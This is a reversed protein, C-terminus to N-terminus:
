PEDKTALLYRDRGFVDLEVRVARWGGARASDLTAGARRSDIELALLGGPVLHAAAERLIARTQALGDPGGDLAQRPEYDRVSPDVADWEDGTLYPPNSVIVDAIVGALPQLLSGHRFEVVGGGTAAACNARAVELADASVDTAIIREFAGEAALSLAIAGSGTGIDVATGWRGRRRAWALVIEVLGETEPRPILVRQDVRLELLRFAALGVATALPAGRAQRAVAERFRRVFDPGPAPAESALWVAGPTARALAAWTRLAAPRGLVRAGADIEARVSDPRSAM